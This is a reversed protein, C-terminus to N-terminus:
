PVHYLINYIHFLNTSGVAGYLMSIGFILIVSSTAGLVFFKIGAEVGYGSGKNLSVLAYLCISQIELALFMTFLDVSSIFFMVGFVFLYLIFYEFCASRSRDLSSRSM